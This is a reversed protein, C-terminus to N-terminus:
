EREEGEKRQCELGLRPRESARSAYTKLIRLGVGANVINPSTESTASSSQPLVVAVVFCSTGGCLQKCIVSRSHVMVLSRKDLDRPAIQCTMVMQTAVDIM